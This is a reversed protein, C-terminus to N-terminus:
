VSVVVMSGVISGMRRRRGLRRWVRLGWVMWFALRVRMAAGFGPSPGRMDRRESRARGEIAEEWLIRFDKGMKRRMIPAEVRAM